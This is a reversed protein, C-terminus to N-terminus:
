SLEEIAKDVKQKWWEHAALEEPSLHDFKKQLVDKLRRWHKGLAQNRVVGEARFVHNFIKTRTGADLNKRGRLIHLVIENDDTYRARGERPQKVTALQSALDDFSDSDDGQKDDSHSAKGDDKMAKDIKKKWAAHEAREATSLKAFRKRYDDKFRSWQMILAGRERVIGQDRFVRNFIDTRAEHQISVHRHLLYLVIEEDAAYAVRKRKRQTAAPIQSTQQDIDDGDNRSGASSLRRAETDEDDGNGDMSKELNGGRSKEVREAHDSSEEGESQDLVFDELTEYLADGLAPEDVPPLSRIWATDEGSNPRLETSKISVATTKGTAKKGAM